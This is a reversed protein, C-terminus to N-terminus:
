VAMPLMLARSYTWCNWVQRVSLDTWTCSKRPHRRPIMTWTQRCVDRLKFGFAYASDCAGHPRVDDLLLGADQLLHAGGFDGWSEVTTDWPNSAPSVDASGAALDM